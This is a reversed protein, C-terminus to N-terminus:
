TDKSLTRLVAFFDKVNKSNTATGMVTAFVERNATLVTPRARHVSM